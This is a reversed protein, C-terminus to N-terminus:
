VEGDRDGKYFPIFTMFTVRSQSRSHTKGGDVIRSLLQVLAIVIIIYRTRSCVRAADCLICYKRKRVAVHVLLCLM